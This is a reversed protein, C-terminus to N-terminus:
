EGKQEIVEQVRFRARGGWREYWCNMHATLATITTTYITSNSRYDESSDQPQQSPNSPLRWPQIRSRMRRVFVNPYRVMKYSLSVQKLINQSCQKKRSISLTRQFSFFATLRRALSLCISVECGGPLFEVPADAPLCFRLALNAPSYDIM